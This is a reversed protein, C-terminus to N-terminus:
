GMEEHGAGGMERARREARADFYDNARWSLHQKMADHRAREPLHEFDALLEMLEQWLWGPLAEALDDHRAGEDEAM